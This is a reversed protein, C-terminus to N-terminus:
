QNGWVYVSLFVVIWVADVFHWYWMCSDLGFHHHKYTFHKKLLRIWCVMLYVSGIIVHLGHFGTLVFFVSGYAGDSMSFSSSYYEHIQLYTFYVGLVITIGLCLLGLKWWKVSLAVSQPNGLSISSHVKVAKHATTAWLGSSVLVVTNLFPVGWPYMGEMGAPPWQAGVGQMSIEGVSATFFAWFLSFFFWAESLIFLYFGWRLNLVVHSTHNGLFTSEEIIDSWWGTLAMGLFFSVVGLYSYMSFSVEDTLYWILGIAVGFVSASIVIPWPSMQVKSYGTRAM